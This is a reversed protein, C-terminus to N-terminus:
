IDIKLIFIGDSVKASSRANHAAFVDKVFSLGLGRTNKGQANKLTTFRDFVQDASGNQLDTDNKQCITIRDNIKKLSFEAKSVAFALSNDALEEIAKKIAGENGPLFVDNDIDTTLQLNKEAFESKRCDIVRNMIDSLSINSVAKDESEFIALSGLNKVLSTMKRVQNNIIDTRETPGNEREMIETNANIITLPLRFQSEINSIFKKQKRDSEELPKFLKKGLINLIVVGLLIMVLGGCCSIILIRYSPLLERGQDIVTVYTIGDNKYVRYRYTTKTWGTSQGLLSKAWELAEQESYASMKYAVKQSNGDKDFGFTFYRISSNLEPSDPGMKGFVGNRRNEGPIFGNPKEKYFDDKGDSSNIEAPNKDSDFSGHMAELKETIRDADEAAMTFNVSNIVTLLVALMIFVTLEAYLVFKKRAKNM